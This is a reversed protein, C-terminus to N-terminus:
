KNIGVNKFVIKNSDLKWSSAYTACGITINSFSTAAAAVNMVRITGNVKVGSPISLRLCSWGDFSSEAGLEFRVKSNYAVDYQNGLDDFIMSGSKLLDFGAIDNGNNKISYEFVATSGSMRCGTIAVEIRSDCSTVTGTIVPESAEVTMTVPIEIEGLDSKVVLTCSYDGAALGSRDINIEVTEITAPKSADYAQVTGSTKAPKAWKSGEKILLQYNTAGNHSVMSISAKENKGIPLTTPTVELRRQPTEEATIAVPLSEGDANVLIHTSVNGTFKTRDLNVKVASAKGKDTNGEMPTVTIWAVDVDSITWSVAGSNGINKINFTLSTHEAGFELLETSLEIKSSVAEVEATVKLSVSEKDANVIITTESNKTLKDRLLTVKVANSKGAELTGTSPAIQLWDVGDLGSINWSFPANGENKIDFSLSSNTKGFNLSSVNLSIKANQAVPTLAVDGSARRGAVVTIRKSNTEYGSKKVQIEYQEPDLQQIEFTGDGGTTVSKGGPTITVTAGSLPEGTTASTVKGFVSGTTEEIEKSCSGLLLTIMFVPIARRLLRNM